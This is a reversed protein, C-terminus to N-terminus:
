IKPIVVTKIKLESMNIINGNKSILAEANRQNLYSTNKKKAIIM